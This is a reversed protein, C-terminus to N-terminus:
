LGLSDLVAPGVTILFTVFGVALVGIVIGIIM